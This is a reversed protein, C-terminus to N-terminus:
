RRALLRQALAAQQRTMAFGSPQSGIFGGNRMLHSYVLRRERKTWGPHEEAYRERIERQRERRQRRKERTSQRM